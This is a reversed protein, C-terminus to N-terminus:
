QILLAKGSKGYGYNDRNVYVAGLSFFLMLINTLLFSFWVGTIGFMLPLVVITVNSLVVEQLFTLAASTKHNGLSAFTIRAGLNYGFMLFSYPAIKMGFNILDKYNRAEETTYLEAVLGGFLLFSIVLVGSLVATLTIIQRFTKRLKEVNREGTAYSIIPGSTDFLGFFCGMFAWQINGVITYAALYEESGWHLIVYNSVLSSLAVSLNSLFSSIGYRSSERLLPKLNGSPSAFQMECKRSSYFLLGIVVMVMTAILNAYATGVMGIRKYVVFYWDFFLNASINMVTTLLEMKPKGAPVYFRRFITSILTLPLYLAGIRVFDCAYPYIIETAGLLKIIPDMFVREIIGMLVGLAGVFLVMATFDARAEQSKGEGMKRSALSSVGGLLIAPSNHMMFLPFLISFAALANSGIYRSIFLGDDITYLLNIVLENLVAPVAFGALQGLSYDKGITKTEDM